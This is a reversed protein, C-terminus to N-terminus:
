PWENRQRPEGWAGIGFVRVWVGAVLGLGLGAGGGAGAGAAPVTDAVSRPELQTPRARAKCGGSGAGNSSGGPAGGSKGNRAHGSGLRGGIAARRRAGHVSGAAAAALGHCKQSPDSSVQQYELPPLIDHCKCQNVKCKTTQSRRAGRHGSAKHPLGPPPARLATLARHASWLRRHETAATPPTAHPQMAAARRRRRAGARPAPRRPARGGAVPVACRCASARVPVPSRPGAWRGVPVPRGHRAVPPDPHLVVAGVYVCM